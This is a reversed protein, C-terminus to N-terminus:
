KISIASYPMAPMSFVLSNKGQIKIRKANYLNQRGNLTVSLLPNKGYKKEAPLILLAPKTATFFWQSGTKAFAAFADSACKIAYNGYRVLRGHGLFLLSLNNAEERVVGFTAQVAMNKYTNETNGTSSFLHDNTKGATVLTGVFDADNKGSLFPKINQINKLSQGYAPEYVAVFPRNWAEGTQRVVIAPLPLAAISDPVMANHGFSTSHPTKVKFIEREPYGRMWMNMHVNKRGPVRLSFVASFDADTKVSHKDFIYDYSQLDGAAFALNTTPQLKLEKGASTNIDLQQGLNHYFYDHYKDGGANKRSRFVDAYYAVSDNIRITAMMRNQLADTEPETFSVDAYTVLPFYGTKQASAPYMSKLMFPHNSKMAPYSSIGDVVVTNHAAFQSYYEAYDPQFYSTGIGGEPAMVLGKGYLEMALGNAHVHNGKSAALSVMLGNQVDFGNRQVLWSVNPSYFTATAYDSLKGAKVGTDPRIASSAFLANVGSGHSTNEGPEAQDTIENITKLFRTFEKEQAPKHNAQANAILDNAPKTSLTNYHTDGFAVTYGNPYLYQATALVANKLVPLQKLLDIHMSRDFMNVFGTFDAMVGTSYGPCEAWIYATKDYGYGILRPLSWQRLQNKNLIQNLYYQCGKGNKYDKDNELILAIATVFRAEILNWNNFPVGNKIILDAWKQFTEAYVPMKNAAKKQLYGYLFDYCPAIENLIDEHIVEFSTLGVLTQIHSHNLDYPETRYYLGSMYTDFVSFAMRAYQEDGTYWYLFAADRALGMVQRNIAEVNRGAKAPAVWELPKGPVKGNVLYLGRPDDMHPLIDELKPASYNTTADRAGTFRVTPVPAQGETHDFVGGKVFVDTAHSKWYMQLRAALWEPDKKCLAVYRDTNTKIERYNNQAWEETALLKTLGAKGSDASTLLRPHAPGINAPVPIEQALIPMPLFAVGTFVLASLWRVLFHINQVPKEM